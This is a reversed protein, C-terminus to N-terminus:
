LSLQQLATWQYYNPLIDNQVTSQDVKQITEHDPNYSLMEINRNQVNANM